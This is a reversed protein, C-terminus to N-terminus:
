VTGAVSRQLFIVNENFPLVGVMAVETALKHAASM